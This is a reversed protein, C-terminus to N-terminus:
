LNWTVGKRIYRINESTVSFRRGLESNSLNSSRIFEVDKQTLKSKGCKEGRASRKKNVMDESNEKHSALWLHDPNVCLRNDCVHAVVKDKPIEGKFAEYSVRHASASKERKTSKCIGYGVSTYAGMWVWCGVETIPQSNKFIREQDTMM